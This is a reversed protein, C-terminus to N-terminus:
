LQLKRFNFLLLTVANTHEAFEFSNNEERLIYGKSLSFNDEVRKNVSEIYARNEMGLMKMCLAVEVNIDLSLRTFIDDTLRNFAEGVWRYKARQVQQQYFNSDGIIIHTLGYVYNNFIEDDALLKNNFIETFLNLYDDIIDAINFQKSLYATNTASVTAYLVFRSDTLVKEPYASFLEQRMQKKLVGFVNMYYMYWILCHYSYLDIRRLWQQRKQTDNIKRSKYREVEGQKKQFYNKPDELFSNIEKIGKEKTYDYALEFLQKKLDEKGTALWARYLFHRGKDKPLENIKTTYTKIISESIYRIDM